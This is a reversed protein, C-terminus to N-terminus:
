RPPLPAGPQLAPWLYLEPDTAILREVVLRGDPEARCEVWVPVGGRQGLALRVPRSSRPGPAHPNPEAPEPPPLVSWWIM